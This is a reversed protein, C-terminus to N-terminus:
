QVRAQNFPAKECRNLTLFDDLQERNASRMFAMTQGMKNKLAEYRRYFVGNARIERLKRLVCVSAIDERMRVQERQACQIIETALCRGALSSTGPPCPNPPVHNRDILSSYALGYANRKEEFDERYKRRVFERQQDIPLGSCEAEFFHQCLFLEYKLVQERQGAIIGNVENRRRSNLSAFGNQEPTQVHNVAETIDALLREVPADQYTNGFANQLCNNLNSEWGDLQAEADMFRVNNSPEHQNFYTDLFYDSSSEPLENAQSQMLAYFHADELSVQSRSDSGTIRIGGRLAHAFSETYNYLLRPPYVTTGDDLRVPIDTNIVDEPTAGTPQMRAVDYANTSSVGCRGPIVRKNEGFIVEHMGGSYCNNLVYRQSGCNANDMTSRMESQSYGGGALRHRSIGPSMLSIVSRPSGFQPGNGERDAFGHNASWFHCIDNRGAQSFCSNANDQTARDVVSGRNARTLSTNVQVTRRVPTLDRTYLGNYQCDPGDDTGDGSYLQESYQAPDSTRNGYVSRIREVWRESSCLRQTRDQGGDLLCTRIRAQALSSFCLIFILYYYKQMM